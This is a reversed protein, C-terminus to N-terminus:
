LGGQLSQKVAYFTLLPNDGGKPSSFDMASVPLSRIAPVASDDPQDICRV